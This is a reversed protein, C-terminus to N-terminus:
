VACDVSFFVPSTTDPASLPDVRGWRTSQHSLQGGAGQGRKTGEERWTLIHIKHGINQNGCAFSFPISSDSIPITNPIYSSTRTM